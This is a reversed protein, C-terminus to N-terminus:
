PKSFQVVTYPTTPTPPTTFRANVVYLRNGFETLTTPVDFHQNTISEILAGSSLDPSLKIVEITNLQNRVVYLLKGDLLLGDGFGVSAGGLDILDALGSTPNVNFLNGQGSNVVILADGEPTADIGNANFGGAQVWDGSLPLTEISSPDPLGGVPSLPLKFLWANFSDTFFAASPTVVVDNIFSGPGTLSFFGVQDGNATDYVAATGTAGGAVFLFGTRKDFALGVAVNGPTGNVLISGTGSRFDGKFIAGDELSGVYFDTGYGSVIGEPRFGDPLPIMDPFSNSKAFAVSTSLSVLVVLICLSSKLKNM